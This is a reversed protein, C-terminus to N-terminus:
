LRVRKICRATTSKLEPLLPHKATDDFCLDRVQACTHRVHMSPMDLFYRIAIILREQYGWFQKWLRLRPCLWFASAMNVVTM